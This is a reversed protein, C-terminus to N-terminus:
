QPLPKIPRGRVAEQGRSRPNARTKVKAKEDTLGRTQRGPDPHHTTRSTRNWPAPHPRRRNQDRRTHPSTHHRAIPPLPAPVAEKSTATTMSRQAPASGAPEVRDRPGRRSRGEGEVMTALHDKAELLTTIIDSDVALKGTRIRDLVTEIGHTFEAIAGLGVM